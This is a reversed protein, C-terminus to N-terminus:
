RCHPRSRGAGSASRALLGLHEPLPRYTAEASVEATVVFRDGSIQHADNFRISGLGYVEELEREELGDAFPEFESNIAVGRPNEAHIRM